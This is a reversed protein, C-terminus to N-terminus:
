KALVRKIQEFKNGIEKKQHADSGVSVYPNIKKLLEFFKKSDLEYASNIEIAVEKKRAKILIKELFESPFTDFFRSYVGFPHGLVDIRPNELLGMALEYETEAAKKQGLKEIEELSLLKGEKTPYRHVSGIVIEASNIVNQPADVNGKFDIAKTEIGILLDIDRKQRIKKLKRKFSNFWKTKHNVHEAFAISKLGKNKAQEVMDLPTSKGHTQSTHLHWDFDLNSEKLENFRKFSPKLVRSESNKDLLEKKTELRELIKVVKKGANGLAYPSALKIGKKRFKNDQLAKKFASRIEKKGYSVDIVNEAHERGKQRTGVNVAPVGFPTSEVIGSSSNGVIAESNKLLVLYELYPINKFAKIQKNKKFKQITKIIKKSGSDTNPYIVIVEVGFNTTAELINEMNRESEDTETIVPHQIVIVYKKNKEGVYKEIIQNKDSLDTNKINDLSTSGIVFVRNEKEGMLVLREASKQSIALHVQSLKTVANRVADDVHGTKDGGSVHVIPINLYQGAIAAALMEARDGLLLLVDPKETALKKTIKSLFDALFLPTSKLEDSKYRSDIIEFKFKDKKVLEVTKGGKKSLHMGTAIVKLHLNKSKDIERLVSSMLGYDARTGTVYIIKKM